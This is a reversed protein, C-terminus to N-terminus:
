VKKLLINDYYRALSKAKIEDKKAEYRAKSQERKQKLIDDNKTAHYKILKNYIIIEKHSNYYKNNAETRNQTVGHCNPM